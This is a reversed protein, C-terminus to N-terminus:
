EKLLYQEQAYVLDCCHDWWSPVESGELAVQAFCMPVKEPTQTCTSVYVKVHKAEKVSFLSSSNKVFTLM